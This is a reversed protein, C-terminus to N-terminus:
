KGSAVVDSTTVTGTLGRLMLEMVYGRDNALLLLSDSTTGDPYFFIPESWQEDGTPANEDTPSNGPAPAATSSAAMDRTVFRVGQPLTRDTAQSDEASLSSDNEGSAAADWEAGQAGAERSEGQPGVSFRGGEPVYRFAFTHGSRMAQIRTRCLESRVMDAATRLRHSAFPKQLSPWAVAAIVASITLVLLLETLTFARRARPGSRLPLGNLMTSTCTMHM